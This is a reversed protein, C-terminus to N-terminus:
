PGTAAQGEMMRLCQSAQPQEPFLLRGLCRLDVSLNDEGQTKGNRDSNLQSATRSPSFKSPPRVHPHTNLGMFGKYSAERGFASECAQWGRSHGRPGLQLPPGATGESQM